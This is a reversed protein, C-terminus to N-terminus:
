RLPDPRPAPEGRGRVGGVDRVGDDPQVVGTRTSEEMARMRDADAGVDLEGMVHEEPGIVGMVAEQTVMRTREQDEFTTVAGGLILAAAGGAAFYWPARAHQKGVKCDALMITGDARRFYRVCLTGAKEVILAQAEDRTMASLNFVQKQCAGCSRVREDGTMAAWSASCPSAVQINDLVPLNVRAKAEHLLRRADELERSKAAVESTLSAHRAALAEVDDRYASM